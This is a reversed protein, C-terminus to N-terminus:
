FLREQSANAGKRAAPFILADAEHFALRLPAGAEVQPMTRRTAPVLGVVPQGRFACHM